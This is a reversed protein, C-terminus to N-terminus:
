FLFLLTIVLVVLIGVGLLFGGCLGGVLSIFDDKVSEYSNKDSM